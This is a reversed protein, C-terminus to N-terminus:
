AQAQRHIMTFQISIFNVTEAFYERFDSCKVHRSYFLMDFSMVSNHTCLFRYSAFALGSSSSREMLDKFALTNLIWRPWVCEYECMSVAWACQACARRVIFNLRTLLFQFNDSCKERNHLQTKRVSSFIFLWFSQMFALAFFASFEGCVLCYVSFICAVAMPQLLPPLLVAVM